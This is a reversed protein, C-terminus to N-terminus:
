AFVSARRANEALLAPFPLASNPNQIEDDQLVVASSLLEDYLAQYDKAGRSAPAHDFIDKEAFPSEALSVSEAIRTECVDDGFKERREAVLKKLADSTPGLNSAGSAITAFDGASPRPWFYKPSESKQALLASGVIQGANKVLSGSAADPFAVRAIVTVVLPYVIGTLVTLVLLIRLSQLITKM